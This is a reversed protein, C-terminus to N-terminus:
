DADGRDVEAWTSLEAVVADIAEQESGHTDDAGGDLIAHGWTEPRIDSDECVLPSTATRAARM